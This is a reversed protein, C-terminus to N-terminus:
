NVNLNKIIVNIHMKSRELTNFGGYQVFNVKGIIEFFAKLIDILLFFSLAQGIQLLSVRSQPGQHLGLGTSLHHHCGQHSMVTPLKRNLEAVDQVALWLTRCPARFILVLPVPRARSAVRKRGNVCIYCICMFTERMSPLHWRKAAGFYTEQWDVLVTQSVHNQKEKKKTTTATTTIMEAVTRDSSALRRQGAAAKICLQLSPFLYWHKKEASTNETKPVSLSEEANLKHRDKIKMKSSIFWARTPGWKCHLTKYEHCTECPHVLSLLIKFNSYRRM